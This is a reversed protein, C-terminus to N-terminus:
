WWRARKYSAFETAEKGDLKDANLNTVLTDRNARMPAKGEQVNLALATDNADPNNNILQLM